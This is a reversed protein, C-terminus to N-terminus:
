GARAVDVENLLEEICAAMATRSRTRALFDQGARGLAARDDSNMSALEALGVGLGGPAIALGGTSDEVFAATEGPTNTIVPLGAAMYDFLKNPSVGSRFLEVDALCHVGIDAAALLDPIESKPVPDLFRVNGIGEARVMEVLHAKVAGDGVLVVTLDPVDASADRAAEVLLDLGNAPGHAGAYVAVTGEFGYRERLAERDASPQFDASDAGNPIFEVRYRDVGRDLLHSRNGQAMIVIRDARLYLFTELRELLRYVRSTPAMAGMDVLVKPWLDRIELVFPVRRIRAVAWASLAALLHPSSGYVVDVKRITVARVFSTVAYSVWNVIRGIGNGSYPTVPVTRLVGGARVRAGSLLNRNAAIVLADWHQLRSFLEVHRTGGPSSVPQAFHNLVVVKPKEDASLERGGARRSM